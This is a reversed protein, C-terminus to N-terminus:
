ENSNGFHKLQNASPYQGSRYLKAYKIVGAIVPADTTAACGTPLLGQMEGTFVLSQLHWSPHCSGWNLCRRHSCGRITDRKVVESASRRRRKTFSPGFSLQFPLIATRHGFPDSLPPMFAM